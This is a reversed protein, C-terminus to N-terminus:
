NMKLIKQVITLSQADIKKHVIKKEFMDESYVLAFGKNTYSNIIFGNPKNKVFTETTCNTLFLFITIFLINKYFM